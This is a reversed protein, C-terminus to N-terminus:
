RTSPQSYDATLHANLAATGEAVVAATAATANAAVTAATGSGARNCRDDPGSAQASDM